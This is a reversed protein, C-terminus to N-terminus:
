GGFSEDLFSGQSQPDVVPEVDSDKTSPIYTGERNIGAFEEFSMLDAASSTAPLPGHELPAQKASTGELGTGYEDFYYGHEDDRCGGMIDNIIADDLTDDDIDLNKRRRNHYM